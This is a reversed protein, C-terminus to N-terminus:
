RRLKAASAACWYIGDGERVSIKNLRDNQRQPLRQGEAEIATAGLILAALDFRVILM